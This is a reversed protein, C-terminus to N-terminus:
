ETRWGGIVPAVNSLVTTVYSTDWLDTRNLVTLISNVTEWAVLQEVRTSDGADVVPMLYGIGAACTCLAPQGNGDTCNSTYGPPVAAAVWVPRDVFRPDIERILAFAIAREASTLSTTLAGRNIEYNLFSVVAGRIQRVRAADPVYRVIGTRACEPSSPMIPWGNVVEVVELDAPAPPRQAAAPLALALLILAARKM